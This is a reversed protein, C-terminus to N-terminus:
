AAASGAISTRYGYRAAPGDKPNANIDKNPMDLVLDPLEDDDDMPAGTTFHM